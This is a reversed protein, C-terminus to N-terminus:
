SGPPPAAQPIAQPPLGAGGPGAQPSSGGPPPEGPAPNAAPPRLLEIRAQALEAEARELQQSLKEIKRELLARRTLGLLWMPVAVLALLGAVFLPLKIDVSTGGGLSLTVTQWNLVALVTLGVALLAALIIRIRTM